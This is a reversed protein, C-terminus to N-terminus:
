RKNQLVIQTDQDFDIPYGNPHHEQILALKMNFLIFEVPTLGKEHTTLDEGPIKIYEDLEKQLFECADLITQNDAYHHRVYRIGENAIDIYGRVRKTFVDNRSNISNEPLAYLAEYAIVQAGVSNQKQYEKKLIELPDAETACVNQINILNLILAILLAIHKNM